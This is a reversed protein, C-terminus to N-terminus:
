GEYATDQSLSAARSEASIYSLPDVSKGAVTMEFHLHPEEAIESAASEGVCGIVQGCLVPKGVALGEALEAGLNAYVTEGGGNHTIRVTKGLFPDDLIEAVTGDAAAMVAAGAECSIDIGRHVRWLDYTKSFVLTDLDHSQTVLGVAPAVFTPLIKSVDTDDPPTVTTDDPVTSSPLDSPVEPTERGQLTLLVGTLIAGVCLVAAAAIYLYRNAKARNKSSSQQNRNEM